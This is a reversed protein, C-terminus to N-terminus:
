SSFPQHHNHTHSLLSTILSSFFSFVHTIYYSILSLSVLLIIYNDASTLLTTFHPPKNCCLMAQQQEDNIIKILFSSLAILTFPTIQHLCELSVYKCAIIINCLTLPQIVFISVFVLAIKQTVFVFVCVSSALLTTTFYVFVLLTLFYLSLSFVLSVATDTPIDIYLVNGSIYYM